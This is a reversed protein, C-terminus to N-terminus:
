LETKYMSLPSTARLDESGLSFRFSLTTFSRGHPPTEPRDTSDVREWTAFKKQEPEVSEKCREFCATTSKM